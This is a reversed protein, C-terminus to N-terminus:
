SSNSIVFLTKTLLDLQRTNNYLHCSVRLFWREKWYNVVVEIGTQERIKRQLGSWDGPPLPVHAMSGYWGGRRDGIPVTGLLEVLSNEAYEALWRSRQQFSHLGVRQLYEIASPIALLPSPDRTGQWTFRDGWSHIEGPPLRGWGQVLPFMLEQWREAVYLFGSGLPASLWKHCSAVFFDCDLQQLDLDVQAPAHPGDIGVAIGAQRFRQCIAACPLILATPSTIQSFVLLRTRDTVGQWLSDLVQQQSEIRTPLHAIVLKARAQECRRQWMRAVPVYEHDTILVEDGAQLPFHSALISMGSTANDVLVLHRASTGVFQALSQRAQELLPEYRHLYFEMPNENLWQQFQRQQRLVPRPTIGFSGHNLYVTDPDLWFDVAWRDWDQDRAPDLVIPGSPQSQPNDKAPM